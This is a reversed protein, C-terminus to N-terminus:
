RRRRRKGRGCGHRSGSGSETSATPDATEIAHRTAHRTPGARRVDMLRSDGARFGGVLAYAERIAEAPLMGDERIHVLTQHVLLIANNVVIGILIVFGLLTLMDLPQFTFQNLLSLGVVGGATAMKDENTWTPQEQYADLLAANGVIHDSAGCDVIWIALGLAPGMAKAVALPM